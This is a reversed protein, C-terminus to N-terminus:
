RARKYLLTTTGSGVAPAPNIWRMEDGSITILRKQDAGNWNAFSSAEIHQIVNGEADITYTGYFALLGRAVASAEEPTPSERNNSAIKPLDPRMSMLSFHGNRDYFLVGKPNPGFLERKTGGQEVVASALTWSGLIQERVDAAKQQAWVSSAGALTVGTLAIVVLLMGVIKGLSRIM